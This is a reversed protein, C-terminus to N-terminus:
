PTGCRRPEPIRASQDDSSQRLQAVQRAILKFRVDILFFISVRDPM